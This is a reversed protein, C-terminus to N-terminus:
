ITRLMWYVLLVDVLIDLAATDGADKAIQIETYLGSGIKAVFRASPIHPQESLLMELRCSKIRKESTKRVKAFFHVQCQIM